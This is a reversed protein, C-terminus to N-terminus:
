ISSFSHSLLKNMLKYVLNRFCLGSNILLKSHIDDHGIASKLRKNANDVDRASITITNNNLAPVILVLNSQSGSSDLITRHKSIFNEVIDHQNSHGDVCNSNTM